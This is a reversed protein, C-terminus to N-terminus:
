RCRGPVAVPWTEPHAPVHDPASKRAHTKGAEYVCWRLVQPGQALATVPGVGYLRAQLEKAGALQRAAALLRGRLVELHGELVSLMDLATGVQLQGAPSLQAAAIARLATMGEGTRRGEEGLQRAGQHFLVAHIRQVWATHEVRLDHYLELLARCELM